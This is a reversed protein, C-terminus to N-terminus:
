PDPSSMLFPLPSPSWKNKYLGMHMWKKKWKVLSSAPSSTHEEGGNEFTNTKVDSLSFHLKSILYVIFCSLLHFWYIFQSIYSSTRNKCCHLLWSDNTLISVLCALFRLCYYPLPSVQKSSGWKCWYISNNKLSLFHSILFFNKKLIYTKFFMIYLLKPSHKVDLNQVIHLIEKIIEKVKSLIHGAKM